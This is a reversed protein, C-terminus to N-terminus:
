DQVNKMAAFCDSCYIPKGNQLSFPVTAEGGCAACVGTFLKREEKVAKRHVERCKKCKTPEHRLEKKAYFEQEGATFTFEEGCEKCTLIKDEFM